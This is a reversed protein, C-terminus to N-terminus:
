NTETVSLILKERLMKNPCAAKINRGIEVCVRVTEIDECYPVVVFSHKDTCSKVLTTILSTPRARPSLRTDPREANIVPPIPRISSRRNKGAWIYNAYDGSDKITWIHPKRSSHMGVDELKDMWTLLERFPSFIIMQGALKLKKFCLDRIEKDYTDIDLLILDVLKDGVTELCDKTEMHLFNEEYQSQFYGGDPVYFDQKRIRRLCETRSKCETELEPHEDIATAIKLCESLRSDAMNLEMAVDKNRITSSARALGGRMAEARRQEVLDRVARAEEAFDLQKRQVCMIIELEKKRLRSLKDMLICDISTWGLLKVAAIRREGEILDYRGAEGLSVIIPYVLGNVDISLALNEIDGMNSRYRDGINIDKLKLKIQSELKKVQKKM